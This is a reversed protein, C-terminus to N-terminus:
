IGIRYTYILIMYLFCCVNQQKATLLAKEWQGGEVLLDIASVVDVDVLEGFRGHEKLFARYRDDVLPEMEPALEQAVRKAKTWEHAAILAEVAKDAEGGLIYTESAFLFQHLEHLRGGIKSIL